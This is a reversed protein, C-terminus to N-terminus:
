RSLKPKRPWGEQPVLRSTSKGEWAWRRLTKGDVSSIDSVTTVQLSQRAANLIVLDQGQFGDSMFVEMLFQDGQRQKRLKPLSDDLSLKYKTLFLLLDKFWSTTLYPAMRVLNADTFRGSTGMELRMQAANATLLEGTPTGHVTEKCLTVLHIIEQRYWPHKVNLGQFKLPSYLLSRPFTGAIRSRQLVITVMPQMISEWDKKSLYSKMVTVNFAYWAENPKVSGVRLQEGFEISKEKLVRIEERWNGDMAIHVGLTERAESPDLRELTVRIGDVGRITIDGPMAQISKYKWKGQTWVFDLLYWYSKSPVLAGGTAQVSGEWRDVVSQMDTLIEEGPTNVDKGGHVVDTDDVFAFCVVYIAIFTLPSIISIGHGHRRMIAILVASIVAWITPGAGNGQKAGQL